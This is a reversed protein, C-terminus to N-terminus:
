TQQVLRTTIFAGWDEGQAVYHRYGLRDMLLAWARATRDMDMRARSAQRFVWLGAAITRHFPIRRGRAWRAQDSRDAVLKRMEDLELVVLLLGSVIRMVLTENEPPRSWYAPPHRAIPNEARSCAM